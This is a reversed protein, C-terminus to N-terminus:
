WGEYPESDEPVEEPEPDNGLLDDIWEMFDDLLDARIETVPSPLENNGPSSTVPIAASVFALSAFCTTVWNRTRAGWGARRHFQKLHM